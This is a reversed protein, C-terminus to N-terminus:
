CGCWLMTGPFGRRGTRPRRRQYYLYCWRSPAFTALFMTRASVRHTGTKKCAWGVGAGAGESGGAAVVGGAAAVGGREGNPLAEECSGCGYSFTIVLSALDLLPM